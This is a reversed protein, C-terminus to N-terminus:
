GAAPVWNGHFGFPVRQPLKVRAVPGQALHQTDLVALESREEAGRWIVALLWGDGEAATDSRPVFVPESTADGPPLTWGTRERRQLDLWAITDLDREPLSRGAYAGFRNVLGARREDLRPFEGVMDDLREQRFADTAGDLAIRWRVLTAANEGPPPARGDARPFLPPADYQMVDVVIASGDDEDWANLVHFVYCSEARLWRLSAVGADRRLLGVFGGLSPDWVFPLGGRMARALDGHLPMVPFVVHRATVAFDHVMSCYPADFREVRTVRGDAALTGYTMGSSLPGSASYGFFILEGTEPDIKPHATFPPPVAGAFDVVGRTALTAPDLAIPLHGEELALLKGGHWVINTNAVGTDQYGAGAGPPGNAGGSLAHGAQREALFKGTRVWRNRYLARGEALTFAHVMGDG